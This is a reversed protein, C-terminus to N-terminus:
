GNGELRLVIGKFTGIGFDEDCEFRSYEYYNSENFFHLFNKESFFWAPYIQGGVHKPLNQHMVCDYNNKTFPTRDIIIFEPSIQILDKLIEFPKEIYQIVSSLLVLNPNNDKKYDAISNHFRLTENEFEEKGMKVFQDQEIINWSLNDIQSLFKIHQNYFSGLSGGFDLIEFLDTNSQKEAHLIFTIVPWRYKEENFCFGDREYIAKGHKVDLSAKYVKNYLKKSQYGEKINALSEDWSKFNGSFYAYKKRLFIAQHLAQSLNLRKSISSINTIIIEFVGFYYSFSLTITRFFSAIKKIM